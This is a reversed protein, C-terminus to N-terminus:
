EGAGTNLVAGEFTVTADFEGQRFGDCYDKPRGQSEPTPDTVYATRIKEHYQPHQMRGTRHGADYGLLWAKSKDPYIHENM